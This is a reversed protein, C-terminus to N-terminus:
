KKLTKIFEAAFNRMKGSRELDKASIILVKVRMLRKKPNASNSMLAATSRSYLWKTNFNQFIGFFLTNKGSIVM